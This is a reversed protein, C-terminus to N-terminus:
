RAQNRGPRLSQLHELFAVLIPESIAARASEWFEDAWPRGDPYRWEYELAQMAMELKDLERLVRAERTAGATYERWLANLASAEPLAGVIARFAATERRRKEVSGIRDAPTLDGVRAEALDHLLALRVMRDVDLGLRSGVLMALIALRFSHDAVSEPDPIGVRVWGARALRKLQGAAELVPLLPALFSNDPTGCDRPPSSSM